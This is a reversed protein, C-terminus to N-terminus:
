QTGNAQGGGNTQEASSASSTGNEAPADTEAPAPPLFSLVMEQMMQQALGQNAIDLRFQPQQLLTLASLSYVPYSDAPFLSRGDAVRIRINPVLPSAACTLLKAYEPRRFYELYEVYRVFREDDLVKTHALHNLYFPNALCQM